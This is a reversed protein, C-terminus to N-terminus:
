VAFWRREDTWTRELTFGGAAMLDDIMDPTYKYSNETHIREGRAFEFTLGLADIRVRQEAVSDLYIEMRSAKANWLAVHRFQDLRFHGGLERNIRALINKNFQETVRQSDGYAPLLIKPSKALDTGLLLADDSSMQRSLKALI